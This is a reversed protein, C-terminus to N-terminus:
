SNRGGGEQEITTLKTQEERRKKDKEMRDYFSEPKEGIVKKSIYQNYKRRLFPDSTQM